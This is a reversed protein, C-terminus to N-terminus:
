AHSYRSVEDARGDKLAASHVGWVGFRSGYPRVSRASLPLLPREGEQARGSGTSFRSTM